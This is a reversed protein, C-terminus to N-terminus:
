HLPADEAVEAAVIEEVLGSGGVHEGPLTRTPEADVGRDADLPVVAVAELAEDSVTGPRGEREVPEV